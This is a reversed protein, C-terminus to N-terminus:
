VVRHSNKPGNLSGTGILGAKSAAYNAQGAQGGLGVVSSIFVIRGWRKRMMKRAVQKAIRFGGTLNADLVETFDGDSMRLMLRDRTIGANSILIEVAGLEDDVEEVAARM